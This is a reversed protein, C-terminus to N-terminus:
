AAAEQALQAKVQLMTLAAFLLLVAGIVLLSLPIWAHGVLPSEEGLSLLYAGIGPLLVGQTLLVPILTQKFAVTRSVLERKPRPKPPRPAFAEPPPAPLNLTDDDEVVHAIADAEAAVARDHDSLHHDSPAVDDYVVVPEAAPPPPPPAPPEPPSAPLARPTPPAGRPVGPARGPTQPRPKSHPSSPRIPAAAM